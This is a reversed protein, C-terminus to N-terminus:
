HITVTEDCPALVARRLLELHQQCHRRGILSFGVHPDCISAMLMERDRFRVAIREGEILMSGASQAELGWGPEERLIKWNAAQAAARVAEFNRRADFPTSVQTFRLSRRQARWALLGLGGCLLLGALGMVELALQQQLDAVFAATIVLAACVGALYLCVATPLFYRLRDAGNLDLQERGM